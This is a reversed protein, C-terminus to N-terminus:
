ENVSFEMTGKRGHLDGSATMPLLSKIDLHSGPGHRGIIKKLSVEPEVDSLDLPKWSSRLPNGEFM